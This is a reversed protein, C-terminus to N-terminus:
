QACSLLGDQCGPLLGMLSQTMGGREGLELLANQGQQVEQWVDVYPEASIRRSWGSNSLVNGDDEERRFDEKDLGHFRMKRYLTKVDVRCAKATLGIKGGCAELQQPHEGLFFWMFVLLNHCKFPNALM